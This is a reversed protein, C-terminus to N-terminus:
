LGGYLQVARLRRGKPYTDVYERACRYADDPRGAKSWAEVERALADQALSGTPALQRATAFADAAESPQGLRELLVRGLTFAALPAVPSERHQDLVKRLYTIAVQPHGSLRAADAADLLEGSDDDQVTTEQLLRYAGEYDGSQSLSRWAARPTEDQDREHRERSAHRSRSQKAASLQSSGTRENAAQPQPRTPEASAVARESPAVDDFWQSDGAKVIATAITGNPALGTRVRVKGRSVSVRVRGQVREVDFVTGLVAVEVSGARVTFERQKNPIVDFRAGGADLRLHIQKPQNGEVSVAAGGALAKVRSGDALKIPLAALKEEQPPRAVRSANELQMAPRLGPEKLGAATQGVPVSRLTASMPSEVLSSGFYLLGVAAMSVIGTAAVRQARRKRRLQSVGVLLREARAESWAPVVAGRASALEKALEDM